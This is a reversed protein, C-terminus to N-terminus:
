GCFVVSVPCNSWLVTVRIARVTNAVCGSDYVYPNIFVSEGDAREIRYSGDDTPSVRSDLALGFGREAGDLILIHNNSYVSCWVGGGGNDGITDPTNMSVEIVVHAKNTPSRPISVQWGISAIREPVAMFARQVVSEAAPLEFENCVGTTGNRSLPLIRANNM